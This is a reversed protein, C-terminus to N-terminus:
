LNTEPEILLAEWLSAAVVGPRQGAEQKQSDLWDSWHRDFDRLSVADGQYTKHMWKLFSIRDNFGRIREGITHKDRGDGKQLADTIMKRAAHPEHFFDEMLDPTIHNLVHKSASDILPHGADHGIGWSEPQLALGHDIMKVGDNSAFINGHHRDNNGSLFDFMLLKLRDHAPISSVADIKRQRGVSSDHLRGGSREVANPGGLRQLSAGKLYKMSVKHYKEDPARDHVKVPDFYKELGYHHALKPVVEEIHHDPLNHTAAEKIFYHGDPQHSTWKRNQGGAAKGVEKANSMLQDHSPHNGLKSGVWDDVHQEGLSLKTESQRDDGRDPEDTLRSQDDGAWKYTQEDTRQVKLGDSAEDLVAVTRQIEVKRAQVLRVKKVMDPRERLMDLNLGKEFKDLAEWEKILETRSMECHDQIAGSLSHLSALARNLAPGRNVSDDQVQQNAM